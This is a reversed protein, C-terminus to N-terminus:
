MQAALMFFLILFLFVLVSAVIEIIALIMPIPSPQKVEQQHVELIGPASAQLPNTQAPNTQAPSTQALNTLAPNTQAPNTRALNTLAPNTQALIAESKCQRLKIMAIISMILCPIPALFTTVFSFTVLATYLPGRATALEIRDSIIFSLVALAFLILPIAVLIKATNYKNNNM